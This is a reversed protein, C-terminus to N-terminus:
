PCWIHPKEFLYKLFAVCNKNAALVFLQPALGKIRKQSRINLMKIKDFRLVIQFVIKFVNGFRTDKRTHVADLVKIDSIVVNDGTPEPRYGATDDGREFFVLRSSEYKKGPFQSNKFMAPTGDFGELDNFAAQRPIHRFM